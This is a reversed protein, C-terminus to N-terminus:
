RNICLIIRIRTSRRATGSPPLGDIKGVMQYFGEVLAPIDKKYEPKISFLVIHRIM